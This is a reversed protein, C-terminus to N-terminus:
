VVVKRLVDDSEILEVESNLEEESVTDKFMMPANQEPSVVPDLRERKVLLKTEARYRAPLFLASLLVGLFIGLFSLVLLRKHRFGIPVFDRVTFSLGTSGGSNFQNSMSRRM